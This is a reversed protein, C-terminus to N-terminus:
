MFMKINKLINSTFLQNLSIEGLLGQNWIWITQFVYTRETYKIKLIWFESSRKRVLPLKLVHKGLILSWASILTLTITVQLTTTQSIWCWIIFTSKTRTRWRWCSFHMVERQICPALTNLLDMSDIAPYMTALPGLPATKQRPCDDCPQMMLSMSNENFVWFIGHFCPTNEKVIGGPHHTQFSRRIPPNWTECHCRIKMYTRQQAPWM